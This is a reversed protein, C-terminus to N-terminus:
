KDEKIQGYLRSKLSDRAEDHAQPEVSLQRDYYGKALAKLEDSNEFVFTGKGEWSTLDVLPMNMSLVVALKFDTTKYLNNM